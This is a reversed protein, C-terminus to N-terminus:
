CETNEFNEDWCFPEGDNLAPHEIFGTGTEYDWEIYIVDDAFEWLTLSGTDGDRDFLCRGEQQDDLVMDVKTTIDGDLEYSVEYVPADTVFVDYIQWDGYAGDLAIQAAILLENEYEQEGGKETYRLEWHREGGVEEATVKVALVKEDYAYTFDWIWNDGDIEPDGWRDDVLFTEPASKLIEFANEADAALHAAAEYASINATLQDTNFYRGSEETVKSESSSYADSHDFISLDMNVAELNPAAPEEDLDPGTANDDCGWLMLALTLFVVTIITSFIQQAM